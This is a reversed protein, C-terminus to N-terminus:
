EKNLKIEITKNSNLNFKADEYKPPGMVGEANNSVGVPEKPIGLFNKNIKGNADIDQYVSVAYIGPKLNEFIVTVSNSVVEAKKFRNAKSVEIPFGEESTYLYVYVNGKISNIGTTNVTLTNQQAFVVVSVMVFVMISIIKKMMM